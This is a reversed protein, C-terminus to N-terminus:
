VYLSVSMENDPINESFKKALINIEEEELVPVAHSSQKRKMRPINKQEIPTKDGKNSRAAAIADREATEAAEVAKRSPFFCKFIGEAQWKSANTFNVWVDMRGPRSLAPDLREIHNTTAFLLRLNFQMM